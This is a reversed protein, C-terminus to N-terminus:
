SKGFIQPHRHLPRLSDALLYVGASSRGAFPSNYRVGVRRRLRGCNKTLRNRAALTHLRPISFAGIALAM